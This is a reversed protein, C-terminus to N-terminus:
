SEMTESVEVLMLYEERSIEDYPLGFLSDWCSQCYASLDGNRAFFRTARKSCSRPATSPQVAWRSCLIDIPPRDIWHASENM